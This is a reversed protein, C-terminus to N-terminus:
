TFAVILGGGGLVVIFFFIPLFLLKLENPYILLTIALDHLLLLNLKILFQWATKWLPQVM